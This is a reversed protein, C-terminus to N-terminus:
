GCTTEGYSNKNNQIQKFVLHNNNCVIVKYKDNDNM